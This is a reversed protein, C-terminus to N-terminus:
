RARVKNSRKTWDSTGVTNVARVQFRYAGRPLVM